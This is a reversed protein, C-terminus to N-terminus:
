SKVIGTLDEIDFDTPIEVKTSNSPLGHSCEYCLPLDMKMNDPSLITEEGCGWCYTKKGVVMNEMHKPMYHNCDPLACAWVKSGSVEVKHYKHTHRKAKTSM